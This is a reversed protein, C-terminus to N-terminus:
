NIKTSLSISKKFDINPTISALYESSKANKNEVFPRIQFLWLKNDQFGLEVDWAGKYDSNTEKSMTTRVQSAMKRIDEINQDNLIPGEFTAVKKDTGGTKPLRIYGTERAPALLENETATVLRTEASQGDVAGGAGRSFAVTLDEDNGSNIGKTILVGSYDVDVSPIILISPFVNEPNSLYKQRWKFSRDTYPSAWVKKIGDLINDRSLINFLTLNLGAGTFEKLDEMNTDSRLFVPENGLDNGFATKFKTQLQSVFADNLPMKEIAVKLKDLRALQYKEVEKEPTKSARMKEAENFTITLYTWYSMNEGPMFQDMHNRFIGFPIVLGEVVNEPFMSKLQGLNAAKPGCLKGSDAANVDQMNLVDCVDLRIQEVPVAIKETNREKKSFLEKEEDSMDKELKMIVNGKGSVAYFIKKGSYKSLSKLNDNSLASNPIGLNRALLQVHSVLNGESVTLIGAVPKLDSPPRQFIYIKDSDINLNESTEEVVVLEGFAYGPNLGRITSQSDIEMVENALSSKEAILGGLKSISEGLDLAVTSRIRDDIFGYALPEFQSYREVDTEYVSKVMATSWELVGRSVQLFDNLQQISLDSNGLHVELQPEIKQWEWFEILGSGVAALSLHRIKEMLGLLDEPNWKQSKRMMIDELTNSVDLLIMRDNGSRADTIDTRIVCLIDALEPVVIDSPADNDFSELYNLLRERTANNRSVKKVQSIINEKNVPAYFEVMTKELAELESKVNEPLDNEHKKQFNRVLKIDEETPKGHIKIRADMFKPYEDAVVKSQSRMLQALNNDGNHPVDRLSQKLLFFHSSVRSDNPLYKEYFEKGWEEEDESQVAGRYFQSKRQIWGDDINGLYKNIQYQKLRSQNNAEDWFDIRETSALIEGFYLHYKKALEKTDDRYSAHQVGEMPEPCPDRAERISGDECYWNIGKYPGRDNTKFFEIKEKISNTPLEQGAIDTTQFSFFAVILISPILGLKRSM